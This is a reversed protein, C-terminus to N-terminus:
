APLSTAGNALPIGQTVFRAYREAAKAPHSVVGSLLVANTVMRATMLPHPPVEPLEAPGLSGGSLFAALAACGAATGFEAQVAADYAARRNGDSPDAVWAEANKLAAAALPAPESGATARVCRCAWYVAERKPLAHALVRVADDVLGKGTLLYLYVVLTHDERLLQRAGESLTLERCAEAAPKEALPKPKPTAPAPASAPPAFPQPSAPRTPTEARAAPRVSVQNPAPQPRPQPPPVPLDDRRLRVSDFESNPKMAM